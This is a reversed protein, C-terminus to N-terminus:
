LWRLIAQGVMAPATYTQIPCLRIPRNSARRMLDRCDTIKASRLMLSGGDQLEAPTNLSRHSYSSALPNFTPPLDVDPVMVLGSQECLRRRWESLQANAVSAKFFHAPPPPQHIQDVEDEISPMRTFAVVDFSSHRTIPSRICLYGHAVVDVVSWNPARYDIAVFIKAWFRPYLRGTQGMPFRAHRQRRSAGITPRARLGTTSM